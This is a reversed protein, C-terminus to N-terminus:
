PWIAPHSALSSGAVPRTGMTTLLEFATSLKEICTELKSSHSIVSKSDTVPTVFKSDASAAGSSPLTSGSRESDKYMRMLTEFKSRASLLHKVSDSREDSKDDGAISVEGIEKIFDNYLETAIEAKTKSM